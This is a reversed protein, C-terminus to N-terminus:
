MFVGLFMIHRSPYRATDYVALLILGAAGVLVFLIAVGAFAKQAASAYPALRGRLRLWFEIVLAVDFLIVAVASGVIFLTRLRYAGQLM